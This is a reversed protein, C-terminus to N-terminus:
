ASTLARQWNASNRDLFRLSDLWQEGRTDRWVDSWGPRGASGWERASDYLAQMRRRVTELLLSPDISGYADCFIRLRRGCHVPDEEPFLPVFRWLAHAVDWVRPGPAALDWDIFARPGEDGWITNWPSLDNHCVVEGAGPAGVMRQWASDLPPRFSLTADHLARVLRAVEELQTDGPQVGVEGPIFELIEFGDEVGIARPAGGFGTRELHGLLAHVAPTWPGTPRRVTDGIRRVPNLGGGELQEGNL